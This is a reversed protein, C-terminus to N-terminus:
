SHSVSIYQIVWSLWKYVHIVAEANRQVFFIFLDLDQM